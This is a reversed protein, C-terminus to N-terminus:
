RSDTAQARENLIAKIARLQKWEWVHCCCDDSWCGAVIGELRRKEQRLEERQEALRQERRQQTAQRSM